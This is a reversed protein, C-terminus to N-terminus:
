LARFWSHVKPYKKFTEEWKGAMLAAGNPLHFLDVLSIENGALHKQRALIKDYVALVRDLDKEARAVIANDAEDLGKARRM